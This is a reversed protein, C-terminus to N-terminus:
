ITLPWIPLNVAKMRLSFWNSVMSPSTNRILSLMAQIDSLLKLKGTQTDLLYMNSNNTTISENLAMYRDDNSIATVNLGKENKYVSTSPYVQGEKQQSVDVRYMDFFRKDRSNSTYYMKKRDYSWGGFDAKATSDSILDMTSGDLNRIYIHDIENGGKDSSYVVRADGPFYSQSFIANDTSNTLPKQEGTKIDIEVANFIGTAKSNILIKTEDPSFAGGNIQVIDMFQAMTYQKPKQETPKSSCAGMLILIPLVYILKKMNAPNSNM